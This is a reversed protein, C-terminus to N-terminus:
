TGEFERIRKRVGHKGLQVTRWLLLEHLGEVRAFFAKWITKGHLSPLAHLERFDDEAFLLERNKGISYDECIRLAAIMDEPDTGGVVEGNVLSM